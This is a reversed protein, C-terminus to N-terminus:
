RRYAFWFLLALMAFLVTVVGVRFGIEANLSAILLVIVMGLAATLLLPVVQQGMLASRQGSWQQGTWRWVKKQAYTSSLQEISDGSDHVVFIQQCRDCGFAETLVIASLRGRRRCPCPYEENLSIKHHRQIQM